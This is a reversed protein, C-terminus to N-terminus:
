SILQILFITEEINYLGDHKTNFRNVNIMSLLESKIYKDNSNEGLYGEKIPLLENETRHAQRYQPKNDAISVYVSEKIPEDYLERPNLSKHQNDPGARSLQNLVGGARSTLSFPLYSQEGDVIIEINTGAKYNVDSLAKFKKKIGRKPKIRILDRMYLHEARPFDIMKNDSLFWKKQTDWNVLMKVLAVKHKRAKEIDTTNNSDSLTEWIIKKVYDLESM